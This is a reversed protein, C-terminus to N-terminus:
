QQFWSVGSEAAAATLAAPALLSSRPVAQVHGDCFLIHAAADRGKSFVVNAPVAAPSYDDIPALFVVNAPFNIEYIRFSRVGADPQLSANMGYNFYYVVPDWIKVPKTGPRIWLSPGGPRPRGGPPLGALPAESIYPPLANFWARPQSETVPTGGVEPLQNGNEILYLNLAIGWQQLNRAAAVSESRTKQGGLIALFTAALAALVGGGVIMRVLGTTPFHGGNM